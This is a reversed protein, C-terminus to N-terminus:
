RTVLALWDRLEKGIVAHPSGKRGFAWWLQAGQWQSVMLRGLPRRAKPDGTIRRGLALALAELWAAGRARLVPDRMDERLLLLGDAYDNMNDNVPWLAELLAIAGEASEDQTEDEAATLADLRDWAAVLAAHLLAERTGYRQVLTAPSLGVAKGLAAFTLSAPGDRQMLTLAGDLIAADAITRPRAM